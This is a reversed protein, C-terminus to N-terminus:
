EMGTLIAVEVETNKMGNHLASAIQHQWKTSWAFIERFLQIDLDKDLEFCANGTERTQLDM